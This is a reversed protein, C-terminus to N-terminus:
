ILSTIDRQRVKKTLLKKNMEYPTILSFNIAKIANMAENNNIGLWKPGLLSISNVMDANPIRIVKMGRQGIIRKRIYKKVAFNIYRRDSGLISNLKTWKLGLLPADKFWAEPYALILKKLIRARVMPHIYHFNIGLCYTSDLDILLVLPMKDYFALTKNEYGKAMYMYSYFSFKSERTFSIDRIEDIEGKVKKILGNFFDLSNSKNIEFNSQWDSMFHDIKNITGFILDKLAM